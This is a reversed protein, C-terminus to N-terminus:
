AYIGIVSGRLCVLIMTIRNDTEIIKKSKLFLRMEKWWNEFKMRNRNFWRLDPIMNKPVKDQRNNEQIPVPVTSM